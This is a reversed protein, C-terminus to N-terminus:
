CIYSENEGIKRLENFNDPLKENIKGVLQSKNLWKENMFAKMEPAFYQPYNKNVYKLGIMTKAVREDFIIMNEEILFLLIRKDKKFINFIEYNLYYKTIEDKFILIVREVKSFFNPGRHHNTCVSAIHHLFLKLGHKNDRIKKNNLILYLNLFKEEVDDDDDIFELFATQINEIQDLYEEISM